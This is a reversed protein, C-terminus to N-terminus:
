GTIRGRVFGALSRAPPAPKRTGLSAQVPVVVVIRSDDVVEAVTRGAARAQRVEPTNRLDGLLAPDRGTDAIAVGDADVVTLRIHTAEAVRSLAASGDDNPSEFLDPRQAVAHTVGIVRSLEGRRIARGYFEGGLWVTLVGTLLVLALYPRVIEPYLRSRFM